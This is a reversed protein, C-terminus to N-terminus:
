FGDANLSEYTSPDVPAYWPPHPRSFKYDMYLEEGDQLSRLAVIALGPVLFKDKAPMDVSENRLPDIYWLGQHLCNPIVDDDEEWLIEQWAVNPATGAPPHNIYQGVAFPMGDGVGSVRKDAQFGDMVGANVELVVWYSSVEDYSVDKLRADLCAAGWTKTLQLVDVVPEESRLKDQLLLPVYVGAYLSVVHGRPIVDKRKRADVYVGLGGNSIQSKAVELDFPVASPSRM